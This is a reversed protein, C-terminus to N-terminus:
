KTSYFITGGSGAFGVGKPGYLKGYCTKCFTDGKHDAIEAVSGLTKDCSSCRLCGRHWDVVGLGVVREAHYVPKDCRPCKPAGGFSLVKTQKRSPAPVPEVAADGKTFADPLSIRSPTAPPAASDGDDEDNGDTARSRAAIAAASQGAPFTSGPVAPISADPVPTSIPAYIPMPPARSSSTEPPEAPPAPSTEEAAAAAAASAAASLSGHSPPPAASKPPANLTFTVPAVPVASAAPPLSSPLETPLEVQPPPATPSAATARAPSPVPADESVNMAEFKAKLAKASPTRVNSVPLPPSESAKAMNEFKNALERASSM